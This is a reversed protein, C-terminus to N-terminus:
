HKQKPALVRYDKVVAGAELTGRVHMDWWYIGKHSEKGFLGKERYDKFHGRCVHLAQKLGVKEVQGETRLIQKMPEIELTKYVFKPEKGRRARARQVKEPVPKDILTVNKCHLLSIAFTYPLLTADIDVPMSIPSQTDESALLIKRADRTSGDIERIFRGDKNLHETAWGLYVIRRGPREEFLYIDQLWYAVEPLYVPEAGPVYSCPDLNSGGEIASRLVLAGM